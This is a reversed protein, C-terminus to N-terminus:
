IWGRPSPGDGDDAISVFGGVCHCLAEMQTFGVRSSYCTVIHSCWSSQATPTEKSALARRGQQLHVPGDTEESLQTHQAWETTMSQQQVASPMRQQQGRFRIRVWTDNQRITTPSPACVLLCAHLPGMIFHCYYHYFYYYYYIISGFSPCEVLIWVEVAHDTVDLKVTIWFGNRFYLWDLKFFPALSYVVVECCRGQMIYRPGVYFLVCLIFSWISFWNWNCCCVSWWQSVRGTTLSSFKM